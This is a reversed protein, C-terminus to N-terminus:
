KSGDALMTEYNSYHAKNKARRGKPNTRIWELEKNLGKQRKSEQKEEQALRKTKQELWSQYNGEYPLGEGRDLELIWGAVNDLFYRDHTM